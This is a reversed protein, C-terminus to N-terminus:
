EFPPMILSPVTDLGVLDPLTAWFSSDYIWDEALDVEANAFPTSAAPYPRYRSNYHEVGNNQTATMAATTSSQSTRLAANILIELLAAYRQSMHVDDPSSLKIADVVQKILNISPNASNLHSMKELTVQLTNFYLLFLSIYGPVKLLYLSACFIYLWYRVAAYKLPKSSSFIYITLDLINTSAITAEEAFRSLSEIYSNSNSANIKLSSDFIHAAPSLGCLRIYCYEIQLCAERFSMDSPGINSCPAGCQLSSTQCEGTKNPLHKRKWADLGRVFSDWATISVAPGTGQQNKRWSQLLERAKRMHLALDITSESYGDNVSNPSLRYLRDIGVSCSGAFQPELRLRLALAEDTLLVFTCLLRAWELRTLAKETTVTASDHGLSQEDNFCGIEQALSIATSLLM